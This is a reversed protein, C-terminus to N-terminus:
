KLPLRNRWHDPERHLHAIALIVVEGGHLSYIVGYPFRRLLFRRIDRSLPQWAEPHTAIRRTAIRVEDRLEAGLGARQRNYYSVAERLDERAASLFRVSVARGTGRLSRGCPSREDRRGSIGGDPKRSRDGM